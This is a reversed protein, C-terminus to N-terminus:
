MNAKKRIGKNKKGPDNKDTRKEKEFQKGKEAVFVYVYQIEEWQWRLLSKRPDVCYCRNKFMM